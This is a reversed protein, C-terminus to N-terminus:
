ICTQPLSLAASHPSSETPELCNSHHVGTFMAFFGSKWRSPSIQKNLLRDAYHRQEQADSKSHRLVPPQRVSRSSIFRRCLVCQSIRLVAIVSFNGCHYPLGVDAAEASLYLSLSLSLASVVKNFTPTM